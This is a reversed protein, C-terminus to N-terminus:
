LARLAVEFRALRDTLGNFGGNIIKTITRNDRLDAYKNLNNISWFWVASRVAGEPTTLYSPDLNKMIYSAFKDYNNKGTVQILGRGRYKWGDGSAEPGNGMRNGYVKNAIKEPQYAYAVAAETTRFYGPFVKILGSASYKLNEEVFKFDGSEHGIQSLFSAIREKTSIMGEKMYKNLPDLYKELDEKRANPMCAKLQELTIVSEEKKESSFWGLIRDFM